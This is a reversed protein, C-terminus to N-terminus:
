GSRGLWIVRGIFDCLVYGVTGWGIQGVFIWALLIVTLAFPELFLRVILLCDAFLRSVVRLGQTLHALLQVVV